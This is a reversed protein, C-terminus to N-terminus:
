SSRTEKTLPKSGGGKRRKEIQMTALRVVSRGSPQKSRCLSAASRQPCMRSRCSNRSRGITRVLVSSINCLLLAVIFILSRLQVALVKYSQHSM